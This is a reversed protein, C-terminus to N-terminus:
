RSRGVVAIHVVVIISREAKEGGGRGEVTAVEATSSEVRKGRVRSKGMNAEEM